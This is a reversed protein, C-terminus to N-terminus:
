SSKEVGNQLFPLSFLLHLVVYKLAAAGSTVLVVVPSLNLDLRDVSLFVIWMFSYLATGVLLESASGTFWPLKWEPLFNQFGSILLPSFVWSLLLSSIIAGNVLSPLLDFFTIDLFLPGLTGIGLVITGVIIMQILFFAKIAVWEIKPSTTPTM